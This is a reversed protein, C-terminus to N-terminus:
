GSTVMHINQIDGALRGREAFGPAKRVHQATQGRRHRRLAVMGGHQQRQIALDGLAPPLLHVEAAIDIHVQAPPVFVAPQEGQFVPADGPIKRVVLAIEAAPAQVAVHVVPLAKGEEGLRRYGQQGVQRLIGVHDVAVVPLRGQHRHVQPVGSVVQRHHEGDVVHLILALVAGLGHLVQEAQVPAPVVAADQPHVPAHVQHLPSHEGGVGNGGDAGGVGGLEMVRGIGAAQLLHHVQDVILEGAHEVTQVNLAIVGGVVAGQGPGEVGVMHLALGHALRLQLPLQAKGLLRVGRQHGDDAAQHAVLAHVQHALTQLANHGGAALQHHQALPLGLKLVGEAPGLVPPGAPYRGLDGIGVIQGAPDVARRVQEQHGGAALGAAQALQDGHAIARHGDDALGAAEVVGDAGALHALGIAVAIHEGAAGGM